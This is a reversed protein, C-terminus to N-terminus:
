DGPVLFMCIKCFCRGPGHVEIALGAPLADQPNLFGLLWDQDLPVPFKEPLCYGIHQIIGQDM